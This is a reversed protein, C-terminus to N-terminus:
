NKNKKNRGLRKSMLYDISSKIEDQEGYLGGIQTQLNYLYEQADLNEYADPQVIEIENKLKEIQEKLDFYARKLHYLQEAEMEFKAQEEIKRNRIRPPKSLDIKQIEKIEDLAKQDVQEELFDQGYSLFRESSYMHFGIKAEKYIEEVLEQRPGITRGDKIKWWWDIKKEDTVLIAPLKQKKSEEIIQKWLILDGFKRNGSKNKQDEYGPPIKNNYRENGDKYIDKLKETDFPDTIRNQFLISLKEYIPDTHQYNQYKSISEEVELNVNEFVKNLSKNVRSSLFPPRSTAQLDKKIQDIKSIFDKYAKEQDSIVEYRNRNYELAAQHPLWIKHKFKEILNLITNKTEDSYRYLNLLVNADFYILGNSWIEKIEVDTKKYFGPFIEKM